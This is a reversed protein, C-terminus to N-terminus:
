GSLTLESHTSSLIRQMMCVVRTILMGSILMYENYAHGEHDGWMCHTPSLIRSGGAYDSRSVYLSWISEGLYQIYCPTIKERYLCINVILM